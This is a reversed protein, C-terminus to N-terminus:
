SGMLGRNEFLRFPHYKGYENFKEEINGLLEKRFANGDDQRTELWQPGRVIDLKDTRDLDVELERLEDQKHLLLRAQLFGFRRFVMFNEDFNIM